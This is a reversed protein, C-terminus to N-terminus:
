IWIYWTRKKTVIQQKLFEMTDCLNELSRLVIHGKGMIVGANCSSTFAYFLQCRFPLFFCCIIIGNLKLTSSFTLLPIIELLSQGTPAEKQMVSPVERLWHVRNSCGACKSRTNFEHKYRSILVWSVTGTFTKMIWVNLWASIKWEAHFLTEQAQLNKKIRSTYIIWFPKLYPYCSLSPNTSYIILKLRANQSTVLWCLGIIWPM